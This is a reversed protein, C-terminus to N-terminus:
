LQKHLDESFYKSSFLVFYLWSLAWYLAVTQNEWIHLLLNGLIVGFFGLGFFITSFDVKKTIEFNIISQWLGLLPLSVLMSYVFFYILGGNLILQLFWNEPVALRDPLIGNQYAVDLNSMIMKNEYHHIYEEKAASGASPLGWGTFLKNPNNLIIQIAAATHRAHLSTSSPKLLGEPLPLSNLTETNLNVAIIAIFLPILLILFLSTRVFWNFWRVKPLWRRAYLVLAFGAFVALGLWAFRSYSLLIFLVILMVALIEFWFKALKLYITKDYSSFSKLLEFTKKLLDQKGNTYIINVLFIPLVLLLYAVFHNPTGFTGALRCTDIGYDVLHCKPAIHVFQSQGESGAWLSSVLPQGFFISAIAVIATLCFGLYISLLFKPLFKSAIKKTDVIRLWTTVVAFFWLWWLEFRFGWIFHILSKNNFVFSSALIIITSLLVLVLPLKSTLDSKYNSNKLKALIDYLFYMMLIAVVGEKWLSTWEPLQLRFVLLGVLMNQIPLLTALIFILIQIFKPM